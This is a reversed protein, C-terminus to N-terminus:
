FALIQALIILNSDETTTVVTDVPVVTCQFNFVASVVSVDLFDVISWTFTLKLFSSRANFSEM